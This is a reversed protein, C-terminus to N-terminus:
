KQVERRLKHRLSFSLKILRLSTDFKNNIELEIQLNCLASKWAFHLRQLRLDENFAIVMIQVVLTAMKHPGVVAAWQESSVAWHESFTVHPWRLSFRRHHYYHLHISRYFQRSACFVAGFLTKESVECNVCRNEKHEFSDKILVLRGQLAVLNCENGEVNCVLLM